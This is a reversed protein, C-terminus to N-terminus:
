IWFKSKSNYIFHGSTASGPLAMPQELIADYNTSIVLSWFQQSVIENRLPKLLFGYKKVTINIDIQFGM